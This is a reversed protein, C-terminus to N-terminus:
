CRFISPSKVLGYNLILKGL